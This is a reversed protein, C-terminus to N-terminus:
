VLGERLSEISLEARALVRRDGVKADRVARAADMVRLAGFSAALGHLREARSTWEETTVAARLAALHALAGSIFAGRLEAILQPEEGVAAALSAELAGPDYAM